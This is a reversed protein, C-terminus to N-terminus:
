PKVENGFIILNKVEFLEGDPDRVYNQAIIDKDISDALESLSLKVYNRCGDAAEDVTHLLKVIEENDKMWTEATTKRSWKVGLVALAAGSVVCITGGILEAKHDKVFKKFTEKTM